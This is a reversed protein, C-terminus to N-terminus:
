EFGYKNYIEGINQENIICSNSEHFGEVSEYSRIYEDINLIKMFSDYLNILQLHENFKKFNNDTELALNMKFLNKEKTIKEKLEKLFDSIVEIFILQFSKKDIILDSLVESAINEDFFYKEITKEPKNTKKQFIIQMIEEQFNFGGNKLKEISSSRFLEENQIFFNKKKDISLVNSLIFTNQLKKILFQLLKKFILSVGLIEYNEEIQEIMKQFLLDIFLNNRDLLQTLEINRMSFNFDGAESFIFSSKDSVAYWKGPNELGISHDIESIKIFSPRNIDSDKEEEVVTPMEKFENMFNMNSDKPDQSLNAFISEMRNNEFKQTSLYFKISNSYLLYSPIQQSNRFIANSEKITFENMLEIWDIRAREDIQLMRKLLIIINESFKNDLSNNIIFEFDENKNLIELIGYETIKEEDEGWPLTGTLMKFLIIGLSWIDCKYTFKEGRLIQPSKYCSTGIPDQFKFIKKLTRRACGFDAIKVIIKNNSSDPIHLLINKPKLDGHIYPSHGEKKRKFVLHQIGSLIQTFFDLAIEETLPKHKQIFSELNGHNCYRMLLCVNDIIKENKIYSKKAFLQMFDVINPHSLQSLATIESIMQYLIELNDEKSINPPFNFFKICYEDDIEAIKKNIPRIGVREVCSLQTTSIRGYFYFKIVRNRFNFSIAREIQNSILRKPPLQFKENIHRFTEITFESLNEVLHSDLFFTTFNLLSNIKKNTKLSNSYSILSKPVTTFCCLSLCFFDLSRKQQYGCKNRKLLKEYSNKPFYITFLQKENEFATLIVFLKSGGLNLSTKSINFDFFEM